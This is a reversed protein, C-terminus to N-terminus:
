CTHRTFIKMVISVAFVACTDNTFATLILMRFEIRRCPMDDFTVFVGDIGTCRRVDFQIIRNVITKSFFVGICFRNRADIALADGGNAFGVIM